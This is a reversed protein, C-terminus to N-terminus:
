TQTIMWVLNLCTGSHHTITVIKWADKWYTQHLVWSAWKSRWFLHTPSVTRTGGAGQIRLSSQILQLPPFILIYSTVTGPGGCLNTMACQECVKHYAMPHGQLFWLMWPAQCLFGQDLFPCFRPQSLSKSKVSTGTNITLVPIIVEEGAFGSELSKTFSQMVFCESYVTEHNRSSEIRLRYFCFCDWLCFLFM